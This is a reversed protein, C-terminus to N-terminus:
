NHVASGSRKIHVLERTCKHTERERDTRTDRHMPWGRDDGALLVGDDDYRHHGHCPGDDQHEHHEAEDDPSPVSERAGNVRREQSDASTM